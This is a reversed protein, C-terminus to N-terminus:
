LILKKSFLKEIITEIASSRFNDAGSKMILRYIGFFKVGKKLMRELVFSKRTENSDVIAGILDNKVDIFNAKLQKTDKPFCYGGYGFFPNNYHMGIRPDMCVGEIIDKSKLDYTESYSNLGNFYAVRMASYSNSSLKIAEVETSNTYKSIGVYGTGAVAIKM